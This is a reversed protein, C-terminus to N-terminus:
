QCPAVATGRYFQHPVTNTMTFQWLGSSNTVTNTSDALPLRSNMPAALDPSAVVYYDAQPTGVFTLTFTNDANKVISLLANTQSCTVFLKVVQDVTGTSSLFNGDGVYQATMANTGLPLTATDATIGGNSLANTSFRTGNASFVVNGSPLDTAPPVGNVTATFTVNTGPGSPNPSSGLSCSTTLANIVGSTNVAYTVHYNAGGNGDNVTGAPTLTKGTGANKTDYTETWAPASDGTQVSGSTVTPVAAASTTGNYAKTNSAATVTLNTQNIVGSANVAYTVHYNAGGNGDNVTGAPTLTKGTGANKTDYAETWAPASDGTQVSGSTVTPVAAASTTGNYAKTNSAATVTLNTQNIVGSANVAYTVHYNAGGNGDNVTGAPTLTKGGGVNRTDYTETWTPASDGTQISGSTVTSVAAASTTGNYAKTNAAATVTLNTQSIM